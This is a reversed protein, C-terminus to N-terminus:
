WCRSTRRRSRAAEVDRQGHRVVDDLVQLAVADVDAADVGARRHQRAVVDAEVLDVIQGRAVVEAAIAAAAGGEAPVDVAREGVVHHRADVDAPLVVVVEQGRGPGARQHVVVLDVGVVAADEVVQLVAGGGGRRDGVVVDEHLGVPSKGAEVVLKPMSSDEIGLATPAVTVFLSTVPVTWPMRSHFRGVVPLMVTDPPVRVSLM